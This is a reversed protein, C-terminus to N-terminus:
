DSQGPDAVPFLIENRRLFWPTFPANYRAWIPEGLIRLGKVKIWEQLKAKNRLYGKQSWFGSYRIAAIYREPVQRLVVNPDKPEPITELTFSAPMMFSVVWKGDQEKQGVPSTMSIKQSAEAQGVPTTMAVKEQSKNNGSIYKFLRGFAENGADEFDGGVVTEAIIHPEYARLEFVKEKLKLTYKAEETAMTNGAGLFTIATVLLVRVVHRM